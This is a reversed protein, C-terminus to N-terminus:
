SRPSRDRDIDKRHDQELASVMGGDSFRGKLHDTITGMDRPHLTLVGGSVEAELEDGPELGLADRISKPIVVQGKSSLRIREKM